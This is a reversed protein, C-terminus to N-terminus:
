NCFTDNFPPGTPLERAGPSQNIEAARFHRIPQPASSAVHSGSFMQIMSKIGHLLRETTKILNIYTKSRQV